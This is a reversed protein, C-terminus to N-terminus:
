RFTAHGTFTSHQKDLVNKFLSIPPRSASFDPFSPKECEVIVLSDLHSEKVDASLQTTPCVDSKIDANTRTLFSNYM